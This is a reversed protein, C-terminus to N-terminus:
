KVALLPIKIKHRIANITEGFVFDKLGRHGHTGMVMLDANFEEVLASLAAVRKGYGLEYTVNYGRERLQGAYQNLREVDDQMELDRSQGGAHVAIASELVHVLLYAAQKGGISLAQSITAHDHQSFDVAVAIRSFQGPETLELKLMSAELRRSRTQALWPQFTVYALVYMLYGFLPVALGLWGRIWPLTTYWELVTEYLLKGNLAIVVIAILWAAAKVWWKIAYQQMKTRDSTFHILPIVAYALQMSLIVQSFILMDVTKDEGFYYIVLFAPVVALARTILRRMWPTIRLNIYGEMVIQGALTGTITSSQGSAILAVAFLTPALATGLLPELLVYADKIDQIENYGHKHFVSAALIMIAANVFLALNLAVVTDIFNYKLAKKIGKEDRNFKRTQVLASHLYLNHPMVTAGIVGIAIYLATNDPISPVLGSIIGPLSPKSIIMEVLFSAGIIFVLSIILAEMKRIGYNLIMLLLLSDLMAIAVGYTLPLGFLLNLGIALGLVEALDTAAIAIEALFYLPLNVHRPYTARSAQALDRGYVIGLRACLSQLLLAMLNSMVLVWVLQYGYGSGAAIDTAWNGPDMYGVSVLYAPGLFAFLRRWWGKQKNTDVSSHVDDLSRNESQLESKAM